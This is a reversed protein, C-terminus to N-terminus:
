ITSESIVSTGLVFGQKQLRVQEEVKATLYNVLDGYVEAIFEKAAPSIISIATNIAMNLAEAQAEKTFANDKKLADVYTQSVASVATSVAETVETIYKDALASDTQEKAKNTFAKFWNVAYATIIPIVVSLVAQLLTYIFEKM